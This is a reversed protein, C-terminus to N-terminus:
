RTLRPHLLLLGVTMFIHLFDGSQLGIVQVKGTFLAFGLLMSGAGLGLDLQRHRVALVLVALVATLGLVQSAIKFQAVVGTLVCLVALAITFIWGLGRETTVSSTPWLLSAALAPLSVGAGLMSFFQHWQPLPLLGSFRLVGLLAALMLLTAGILVLARERGAWALRLAVLMLIADTMALTNM